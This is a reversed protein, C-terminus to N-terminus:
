AVFKHRYSIVSPNGRKKTISPFAASGYHSLTTTRGRICASLCVSLIGTASGWRWVVCFFVKDGFYVGILGFYMRENSDKQGCCSNICRRKGEESPEGIVGGLSVVADLFPLPLFHHGPIQDTFRAFISRKPYATTFFSGKLETALYNLTAYTYFISNPIM